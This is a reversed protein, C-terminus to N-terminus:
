KRKRLARHTRRAAFSSTSYVTRTPRGARFTLIHLTRRTSRQSKSARLPTAPASACRRKVRPGGAAFPSRRPLVRLSCTIVRGKKPGHVHRDSLLDFWRGRRIDRGHDGPLTGPDYGLADIKIGKRKEDARIRVSVISKENKCTATIEAPIATLQIM